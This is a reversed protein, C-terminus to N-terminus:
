ATTTYQSLFSTLPRRPGLETVRPSLRAIIVLDLDRQEIWPIVVRSDYKVRCGGVKISPYFTM